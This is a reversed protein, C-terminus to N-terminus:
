IKQAKRAYTEIEVTAFKHAYTLVKEFSFFSTQM